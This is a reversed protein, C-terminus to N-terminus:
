LPGATAPEHLTALIAPTLAEPNDSRGMWVIRPDRRFWVRQRRALARTRRVALDLAEELDMEGELHAIVEKYGIAQGATRSLGGPADALSRVEDVIGADRMASFRQMIRRALLARPLWVGVMSVDLVPEVYEGLGPGFSSFPRGAVQMVELARIVRRRNGPEIRAAAPPDLTALERYAGALGAVGEWQTELAARVEADGGPVTIGDVVARVYLGAGGVFIARRGRQEIAAVAELAASQTRVVSWEEAPDAVDILHHVVSAREEVTPKATGVDMGRYVQMSDLSVIEADGSAEAVAM